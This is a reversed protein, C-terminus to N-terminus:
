VWLAKWVQRPRRDASFATRRWCHRPRPAGVTKGVAMARRAGVAMRRRSRQAGRSGDGAANGSGELPHIEHKDWKGARKKPRFGPGCKDHSTPTGPPAQHARETKRRCPHQQLCKNSRQTAHAPQAECHCTGQWTKHTTPESSPEHGLAQRARGVATSMSWKKRESGWRGSIRRREWWRASLRRARARADDAWSDMSEWCAASATTSMSMHVPQEMLAGTSREARTRAAQAAVGGADPRRAATDYHHVSQAVIMRASFFVCTKNTVTNRSHGLVISIAHRAAFLFALTDPCLTSAKKCSVPELQQDCAIEIHLHLLTVHPAVDDNFDRVHNRM